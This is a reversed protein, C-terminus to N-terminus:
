YDLFYASILRLLGFGIVHLLIFCDIVNRRRIKNKRVQRVIDHLSHSAVQLQDHGWRRMAKMVPGEAEVMQACVCRQPSTESDTQSLQSLTHPHPSRDENEKPPIMHSAAVGYLEFFAKRDIMQIAANVITNTAALLAPFARAYLSLQAIFIAILIRLQEVEFPLTRLYQLPQLEKM